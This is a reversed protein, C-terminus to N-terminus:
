TAGAELQKMQTKERRSARSGFYKSVAHPGFPEAESELFSARCGGSVEM